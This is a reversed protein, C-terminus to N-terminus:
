DLKLAFRRRVGVARKGLKLLQKNKKAERLLTDRSVGRMKAGEALRVIGDLWGQYELPDVAPPPSLEPANTM